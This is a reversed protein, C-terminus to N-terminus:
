QDEKIGLDIRRGCIVCEGSHPNICDLTGKPTIQYHHCKGLAVELLKIDNNLQKGVLKKRWYKEDSFKNM